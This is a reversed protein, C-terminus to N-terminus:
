RILLSNSAYDDKNSRALAVNVAPKFNCSVHSCSIVDPKRGSRSREETRKLTRLCEDKCPM